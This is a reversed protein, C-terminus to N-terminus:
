RAFIPGRGTGHHELRELAAWRLLLFAAQQTLPKACACLEMTGRELDFRGVETDETALWRWQSGARAYHAFGVSFKGRTTGHLVLRVGHTYVGGRFRRADDADVYDIAVGRPRVKRVQILEAVPNKRRAHKAISRQELVHCVGGPSYIKPNKKMARVCAAFTKYGAFPM